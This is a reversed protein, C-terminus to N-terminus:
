GLKGIMNLRFHFLEWGSRRALAAEAWQLCQWVEWTTNLLASSSSPCQNCRVHSKLSTSGDPLFDIIRRHQLSTVTSLCLSPPNESLITMWSWQLKNAIYIVKFDQETWVPLTTQKHLVQKKFLFKQWNYGQKIFCTLGSKQDKGLGSWWFKYQM